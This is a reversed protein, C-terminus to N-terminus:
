RYSVNRTAVAQFLRRVDHPRCLDTGPSLLAASGAAVGFRFATELHDGNALSWIMAGLFSDGAGVVSVPEIRLGEARIADDLTILLAGAEGLTLAIIQVHYQRILSRAAEVLIANDVSTVGTLEQFERLNPKILYVGQLLAAKLPPGSADIIVRASAQKAAMAARGYFDEPVGPPLSGSLIVFGASPGARSLADLCEQWEQELLLAGPFVFRYQQRTSDEFVTFDQRTETATPVVISQVEERVM